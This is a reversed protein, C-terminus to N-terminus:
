ERFEEKLPCLVLQLERSDDEMDRCLLADLFLDEMGLRRVREVARDDRVGVVGDEVAGLGIQQCFAGLCPRRLLVLLHELGEPSEDLFANNIRFKEPEVFLNKDTGVRQEGDKFCLPLFPSLEGVLLNRLRVESRGPLAQLMRAEEEPVDVLETPPPSHAPGSM